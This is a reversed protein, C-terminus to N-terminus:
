PAKRCLLFRYAGAAPLPEDVAPRLWREFVRGQVPVLVWGPPCIWVLTGPTNNMVTSVVPGAPWVTLNFSNTPGENQAHPDATLADGQSSWRLTNKSEAAPVGAVLALALATTPIWRNM